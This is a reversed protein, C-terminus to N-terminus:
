IAITVKMFEFTPKNPNMDLAKRIAFEASNLMRPEADSGWWGVHVHVHELSSSINELGFNLDGFKNLTQQLSLSLWITQLKQMAGQAFKMEM